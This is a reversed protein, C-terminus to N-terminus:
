CTSAPASRRAHMRAAHPAPTFSSQRLPCLLRAERRFLVLEAVDVAEVWVHACTGNTSAERSVATCLQEREHRLCSVRRARMSRTRVACGDLGDLGDQEDEGDGLRDLGRALRLVRADGLVATLGVDVGREDEDLLGHARASAERVARECAHWIDLAHPVIASSCAM